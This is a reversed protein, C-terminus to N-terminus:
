TLRATGEGDGDRWSCTVGTGSSFPRFWGGSDGAVTTRETAEAPWSGSGAPRTLPAQPAAARASRAGQGLRGSAAFRCRDLCPLVTFCAGFRYIAWRPAVQLCRPSAPLRVADPGSWRDRVVGQERNRQDDPPDDAPRGAQPIIMMSPVRGPGRM